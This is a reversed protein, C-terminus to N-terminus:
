GSRPHSRLLVFESSRIHSIALSEAVPAGLENPLERPGGMEFASVRLSVPSMRACAALRLPSRDVVFFDGLVFNATTVAAGGFARSCSGLPYVGALQPAYGPLEGQAGRLKALLFRAASVPTLVHCTAAAFARNAADDSGNEAQEGDYYEYRSIDDSVQQRGGAVPQAPQPLPTRACGKLVGPPGARSLVRHLPTAFVSGFDSRPMRSNGLRGQWVQGGWRGQICRGSLQGGSTGAGACEATAHTGRARAQVCAKGLRAADRLCKNRAETLKGGVVAKLGLERYAKISEADVYWTPVVGAM